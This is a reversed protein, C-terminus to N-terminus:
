KLSSVADKPLAKVIREFLARYSTDLAKTKTKYPGYGIAYFPYGFIEQHSYSVLLDGNPSLYGKTGDAEVAFVYRENLYQNMQQESANSEPVLVVSLKLKANEFAYSYIVHTTADAYYLTGDDMFAILVFDRMAWDVSASDSGFKLYPDKFLTINPNVTLRFSSKKKKIKVEGVRVANVVNGNVEAIYNNTSTWSGDHPITFTEGVKLTQDPIDVEDDPDCSSLTVVSMIVTLFLFVKKM